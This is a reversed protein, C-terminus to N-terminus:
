TQEQLTEQVPLFRAQLWTPTIWPYWRADRAALARAARRGHDVADVGTLALVV